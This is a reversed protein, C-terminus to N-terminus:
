FKDHQTIKTLENKLDLASRRVAGGEKTGYRAGSDNLFRDQAAKLKKLFRRTEKEVDKLTEITLAM